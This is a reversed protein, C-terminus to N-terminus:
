PLNCEKPLTVFDKKFALTQAQKGGQIVLEAEPSATITVLPVEQFYSDGNGPQIGLEQFQQKLYNITLPEAATGPMRGQYKDSGLEELVNQLYTSDITVTSSKKHTTQETQCSVM